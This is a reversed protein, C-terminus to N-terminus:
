PLWRGGGVGSYREPWTCWYAQGCPAKYLVEETFPSCQGNKCKRMQVRAELYGFAEPSTWTGSNMWSLPRHVARAYPGDFQSWWIEYDYDMQKDCYGVNYRVALHGLHGAYVADLEPVTLEQVPACDHQTVIALQTSVKDRGDQVVVEFLGEQEGQEGVRSFTTMYSRANLASASAGALHRWEAEYRGTGGKVIIPAPASIAACRSDIGLCSARIAPVGYRASQTTKSRDIEITLPLDPSITLTVRASATTGRSDRAIVEVHGVTGGVPGLTPGSRSVRTQRSTPSQINISGGAYDGIVRWSYSYPGKGGAATAAFTGVTAVDHSSPSVSVTVPPCSREGGVKLDVLEAVTGPLQSADVLTAGDHPNIVTGISLPTLLAAEEASMTKSTTFPIVAADIAETFRQIPNPSTSLPDVVYRDTTLELEYGYEGASTFIAADGCDIYDVNRTKFRYTTTPAYCGHADDPCLPDSRFTYTPEIGYTYDVLAFAAGTDSLLKNVDVSSAICESGESNLLCRLGAGDDVKPDPPDFAGNLNIVGSMGAGSVPEFNDSVVQWQLLGGAPNDYYDELGEPLRKVRYRVQLIRVANEGAVPELRPDGYSARGQADQFMLWTLRQSSSAGGPLLINLPREYHYWVSSLGYEKMFSSLESRLQDNNADVWAVAASRVAGALAPSPVSFSPMAPISASFKLSEAAMGFGKDSFGIMGATATVGDARDKILLAPRTAPGSLQANALSSILLLVIPFHSLRLRM